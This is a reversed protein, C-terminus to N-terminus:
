SEGAGPKCLSEDVNSTDIVGGRCNAEVTCHYVDKSEASFRYWGKVLKLTELTTGEGHIVMGDDKTVCKGNIMFAEEVCLGCTDSRTPIPHSTPPIVKGPSSSTPSSLLPTPSVTPSSVQKGEKRARTSLGLSKRQAASSARPSARTRRLTRSTALRASAPQSPTNAANAHLALQTVRAARTNVQHISPLLPLKTPVRRATPSATPFGITSTTSVQWAAKAARTDTAQGSEQNARQARPLRAEATLALWVIWADQPLNM